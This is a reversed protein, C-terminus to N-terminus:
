ADGGVETSPPAILKAVVVMRGNTRSYECTSLTLLKDGYKASVGTDYLALAKCQSIFADFATENEADVFHYYKFGDESYAVTKFAAVIEYEGLSSLTDFHITPHEQYFDEREYKCLDAFISGNNMHHGYIVVNDSIGLACNEQVYPVGYNSYQKEFGRKLYFNPNDITQMVPYNINTGDINVWGVFDSNQEHVAAYKELAILEPDPEETADGIGPVTGPQPTGVPQILDAVADFANASQRGDAYQWVLMIGSFLFLAAFLTAGVILIKQKKNM